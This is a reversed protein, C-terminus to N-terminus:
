KSFASNRSSRTFRTCSAIFAPSRRSCCSDSSISSFVFTSCISIAFRPILYLTTESILYHSRPAIHLIMNFNGDLGQTGSNYKRGLFCHRAVHPTMRSPCEIEVSHHGPDGPDSLVQGQSEHSEYRTPKGAAVHAPRVSHIGASGWV